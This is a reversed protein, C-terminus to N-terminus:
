QLAIIQSKGTVPLLEAHVSDAEPYHTEFMMEDGRALGKKYLETALSIIINLHRFEKLAYALGIVGGVFHVPYLLILFFLLNPFNTNSWYKGGVQHM